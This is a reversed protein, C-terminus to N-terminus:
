GHRGPEAECRKTQLNETRSVPFLDNQARPVPVKRQVPCDRAPSTLSQFVQLEAVSRALLRARLYAGSQAQLRALM